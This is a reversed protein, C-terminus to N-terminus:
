LGRKQKMAKIWADSDPYDYFGLAELMMSVEKQAQETKSKSAARARCSMCVLCNGYADVYNKCGRFKSKDLWENCGVCLHEWEGQTNVRKKRELKKDPEM